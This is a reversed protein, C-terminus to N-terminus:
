RNVQADTAAALAARAPAQAARENAHPAIRAPAGADQPRDELQTQRVLNDTTAEMRRTFLPSALGMFLIAVAM